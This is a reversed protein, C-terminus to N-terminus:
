PLVKRKLVRLKDIILDTLTAKGAKIRRDRNFATRAKATIKNNYEQPIWIPNRLSPKGPESVMPTYYLCDAFFYHTVQSHRSRNTDQQEAGGHILNPHWIIAQGKKITGYEVQFGQDKVVKHMAAEYRPYDDLHPRLGFDQMTFEALKHSGPYYALPGNSGDIDELAVWVGAMFGAPISNFHITDAHPSQGTGIPFNLTQFPKPKREFLQELMALITPHVALQRVEDVLRWVDTLRTAFRPNSQFGAEYLPQAESTITDLWAHDIGLDCVLLGEEHFKAVSESSLPNLM